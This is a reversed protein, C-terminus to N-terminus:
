YAWAIEDWWPRFYIPCLQEAYGGLLDATSIKSHRGALHRRVDSLVKTLIEEASALEPLGGHTPIGDAVLRRILGDVPRPGPSVCARFMEVALAVIPRDNGSLRSEVIPALRDHEEVFCAALALTALAVDAPARDLSGVLMPAERRVADYCELETRAGLVALRKRGASPDAFFDAAKVVHFPGCAVHVLLGTTGARLPAASDVAIAALIPIAPVTSSYVSGQHTITSFLRRLARSADVPRGEALAILDGPVDAAPGYAHALDAWPINALGSLAPKASSL